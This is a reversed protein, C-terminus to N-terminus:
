KAMEILLHTVAEQQQTAKSKVISRFSLDPGRAYMLNYISVEGNPLQTLVNITEKFYIPASPESVNEENFSHIIYQNKTRLVNKTLCYRSTGLGFISTEVCARNDKPNVSIDKLGNIAKRQFAESMLTEFVKDLNLKGLCAYSQVKLFSGEFENKSSFNHQNTLTEPFSVETSSNCDSASLKLAIASKTEGVILKHLAPVFSLVYGLANNSPDNEIFYKNMESYVSPKAKQQLLWNENANTQVQWAQASATTTLILLPLLYKKM